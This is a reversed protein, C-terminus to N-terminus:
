IVHFPTSRIATRTRRSFWFLSWPVRRSLSRLRQRLHLFFLRSSRSVLHSATADDQIFSSSAHDRSVSPLSSLYFSHDEKLGQYRIFVSFSLFPYASLRDHRSNAKTEGRGRKQWAVVTSSGVSVGARKTSMCPFNESGSISTFVIYPIICRLRSTDTAIKIAEIALTSVEKPHCHLNYIRVQKRLSPNFLSFITSIDQQLTAFSFISTM